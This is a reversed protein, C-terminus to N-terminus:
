SSYQCQMAEWRSMRQYLEFVEFHTIHKHQIHILYRYKYSVQCYMNLLGLQILIESDLFKSTLAMDVKLLNYLDCM